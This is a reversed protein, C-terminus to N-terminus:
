KINKYNIIFKIKKVLNNIIIIKLFNYFYIEITSLYYIFYIFLLIAYLTLFIM